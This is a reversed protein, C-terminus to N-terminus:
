ETPAYYGRRYYVKLDPSEGPATLQLRVRHYKGDRAPQPLSYGLVYQDRLERSIRASIAPLDNIDGVPYLRGGSQETLEGLLSPGGQEEPTLKKLKGDFIGMAYVQVDSELLENRVERATVRSRNDGGDSLIVLAKRLHRANKMQAIALHIADLLSTRGFPRTRSVQRYIEDSDSTFPIALKARDGFEVLFFEDGSNATQIFTATAQRSKPMKNQMSGSADLLLGISLPADDHALQSITQEAGEDFLRFNEKGLTTVSRGIPTTVHAPVLILSVDARLDPRPVDDPSSPRLRIRPTVSLPGDFSSNQFCLGVSCLSFMVVWGTLHSLRLAM